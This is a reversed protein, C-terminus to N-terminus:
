HSNFDISTVPDASLIKEEQICVALSGFPFGKLPERTNLRRIVTTRPSNHKQGSNRLRSKCLDLCDSRSQKKKHRSSHISSKKIRIARMRQMQHQCLLVATQDSHMKRQRNSISECGKMWGSSGGGRLAGPMRTRISMLIPSEM